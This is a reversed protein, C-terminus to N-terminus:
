RWESGSLSVHVSGAHVSGAHVSGILKIVTHVTGSRPHLGSPTGDLNFESPSLDWFRLRAGSVSIGIGFPSSTSSASPMMNEFCIQHSRSPTQQRALVKEHIQLRGYGSRHGSVTDLSM